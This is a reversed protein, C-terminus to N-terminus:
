AARRGNLSVPGGLKPGGGVGPITGGVASNRTRFSSGAAPLVPLGTTQHPNMPTESSERKPTEDSSIEVGLSSIEVGTQPESEPTYVHYPSQHAVKVRSRKLPNREFAPRSTFFSATPEKFGLPVLHDRVRELFPHNAPKLMMARLRRESLGTRVRVREKWHEGYYSRAFSALSKGFNLAYERPTM